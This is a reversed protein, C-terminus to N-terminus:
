FFQQIRIRLFLIRDVARGMKFILGGGGGLGHKLPIKSASQCPKPYCKAFPEVSPMALKNHCLTEQTDNSQIIIQWLNNCEEYCNGKICVAIKQM